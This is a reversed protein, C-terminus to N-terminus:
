PATFWPLPHSRQVLWWIGAVFAAQSVLVASAVGSTGYRPALLHILVIQALAAACTVIPLARTEESYFLHNALLFYLSGIAASPALLALLTGAHEYGSGLVIAVLPQAALAMVAAVAMALGALLWTVRVIEIRAGETGAALRVYLWPVWAQNIAMAGLSLISAVQFAGFYEGAAQSSIHKSVYLRDYGSMVTVAVSHPVLPLGFRVARWVAERPLRMRIGLARVIWWGATAAVLSGAILQGWGRALWSPEPILLGLTAIATGAPVAIALMGFRVARGSSQLYTLCVQVVFQAAACLVAIVLAIRPLQALSAVM